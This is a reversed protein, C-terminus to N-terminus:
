YKVRSKPLRPRLLDEPPSSQGNETTVHFLFKLGCQENENKMANASEVIPKNEDAVATGSHMMGSGSANGTIQEGYATYAIARIAMGAVKQNM